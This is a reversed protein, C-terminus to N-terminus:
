HPDWLRFDVVVANRDTVMFSLVRRSLWFYIIHMKKSKRLANSVTTVFTSAGTTLQMVVHVTHTDSIVVHVTHTDSIVVHVTHTDSIM